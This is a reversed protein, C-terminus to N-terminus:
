HVFTSGSKQNNYSAVAYGVSGSAIRGVNSFRVEDLKGELPAFGNGFKVAASTHPDLAGATITTISQQVGDITAILNGSADVAMV